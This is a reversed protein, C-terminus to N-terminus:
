NSVIKGDKPKLYRDLWAVWRAWMDLNTERTVQGHDEYPHMFLAAPKGMGQLAHFLRESNIPATGVNQDELNHYMLLAGTLRDAYLLPSMSLYTERAEWLDRRESQFTNPTLTRNYNGDGAIGAKFFPTHVMANVTSFAGYSHGGIGMRARDVIGRKDLEDIVAALNNRLDPVYNDNMRGAEGFIPADPEIVAYGQTILYVMSRPGLNPFRNKNYTRKTRDYGAQDTYEYPYFWIFGPLKPGGPRWERPLTVNVWLKYGDARTVPIMQRQANTIDPTYDKNATLKTYAGSSMDRRYADPVTTPSERTVIAVNLDPDLAATVQEYQDRASTFVRTKQGTRIEIRDLFPQPASDGFARYHQVGNLYAYKGDSSTLVFSTGTGTRGSILTGPNQYFTVSVAGAGGRGGGGGGGGGPALGLSAQLGRVRSITYRKTADALDVAFVHATGSVNEAVFLTKADASFAAQAIRNPNDFVAKKSAADFPASWTYLRDRARARGQGGEESQEGARAPADMQLFSLVDGTAMWEISRKTTDANARAQAANDDDDGGGDGERLLRRSVEAVPTGTVDWLQTITGFASVPVIYSFPKQMVVVRFFSGTPSPDVSQIMAPAGIKKVARTRVDITALQGTTYYEVRDKEFPWELLDAYTRTRNRAGTQTLRVKPGSAIAPAAPEAGRNDPLLVVAIQAGNASWQPETVFTALLATTTIRRSKGTAVDAVYIHSADPFNALFAIQSGDPSWQPGSVTAGAPIEVSTSKGTTADIVELGTNARSTLTRARNAKPDIQLGALNYWPKGFNAVTPMGESQVKLFHKRSPSQNSLSVNLHRPAAVLREVDAPPKMYKESTLAQDLPANSNSQAGLPAALLSLAAIGRSVSLNRM